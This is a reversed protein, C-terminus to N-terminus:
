WRKYRNSIKWIIQIM